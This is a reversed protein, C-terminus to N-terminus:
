QEAELEKIKQGLEFIEDSLEEIENKLSSNEKAYWEAFLKEIVERKTYRASVSANQRLLDNFDQHGHEKARRDLFESLLEM